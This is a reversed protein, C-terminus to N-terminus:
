YASIEVTVEVQSRGENFFLTKEVIGEHLLQGVTKNFSDTHKTFQLTSTDEEKANPHIEIRYHLNEVTLNVSKSNLVSSTQDLTMGPKLRLPQEGAGFRIKTTPPNLSELYSPMEKGDALVVKQRDNFVYVSIGGYLQEYYGPEWEGAAALVTVSKLGVRLKKSHIFNKQRFIAETKLSIANGWLDTVHFSIPVLKLGNVPEAFYTEVATKILKPNSEFNSVEGGSQVQVSIQRLMSSDDPEASIQSSFKEWSLVGASTAAFKQLSINSEFVIHLMRGYDVQEIYYWEPQMGTNEAFIDDASTLKGANIELYKQRFSFLYYYNKKPSTLNFRNAGSHDMFFISPATKVSLFDEITTEVSQCVVEKDPSLSIFNSSHVLNGSAASLQEGFDEGVQPIVEAATNKLISTCRARLTIAKRQGTGEPVFQGKELLEAGNFVMGPLISAAEKPCFLAIPFEVKMGSVEEQNFCVKDDLPTIKSRLSDVPQTSTGSLQMKIRSNSGTAITRIKTSDPIVRQKTFGDELKHIIRAQKKSSKRTKQLEPETETGSNGSLLKKKTM